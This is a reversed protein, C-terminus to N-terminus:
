DPRKLHRLKAAQASIWSLRNVLALVSMNLNGMVPLERQVDRYKAIVSDIFANDKPDPPSVEAKEVFDQLCLKGKLEQLVPLLINAPHESRALKRVNEKLAHIGHGISSLSIFANNIVEFLTEESEKFALLRDQLRALNLDEKAALLKKQISAKVAKLEEIRQELDLINRRQVSISKPLREKGLNLELLKVNKEKLFDLETQRSALMSVTEQLKTSLGEVAKECDAKSKMIGGIEASM